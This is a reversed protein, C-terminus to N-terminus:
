QHMIRGSFEGPLSPMNPVSTLGSAIMLISTSYDQEVGTLRERTSLMWGNGDRQVSVVEIGLKIRDRLTRGAFIEIDVYNELYQTTYEAKFVEFYVDTEPPRPM